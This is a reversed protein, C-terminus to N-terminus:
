LEIEPKLGLIILCKLFSQYRAESYRLISELERLKDVPEGNDLAAAFRASIKDFDVDLDDLIDNAKIVCELPITIAARGENKEEDNM